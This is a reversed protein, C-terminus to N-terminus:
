KDERLENYLWARVFAWHREATSLSIGLLGAAQVLTLGAFFRLKVLEAKQVDFEALRDLAEDLAVLEAPCEELAILNLDLQIRRQGGGRKVASKARARDILIRRM